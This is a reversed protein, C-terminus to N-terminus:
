VRLINLRLTVQYYLVTLKSRLLFIWLQLKRSRHTPTAFHTLVLLMKGRKALRSESKVTHFFSWLAWAYTTNRLDFAISHCVSRIILCSSNSFNLSLWRPIDLCVANQPMESGFFNWQLSRFCLKKLQSFSCPHEAKFQSKRSFILDTSSFFCSKPFRSTDM